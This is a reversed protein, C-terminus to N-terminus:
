MGVVTVCLCYPREDIVLSPMTASGHNIVMAACSRVTDADHSANGHGYVKQAM